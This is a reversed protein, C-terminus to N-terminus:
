SRNRLVDGHVDCRGVKRQRDRLQLAIVQGAGRGRAGDGVRDERANVRGVPGLHPDCADFRARQARPRAVEIGHQGGFARGRQRAQRQQADREGHLVVDVHGAHGGRGCARREGVFRRGRRGHDFPQQRGARDQDALGVEVLERSAQYAGARRVTCHAVRDVGLVHRASGTRPRRHRHGEAEDAERQTGVGGTRAAHRCAQVADDPQFGRTAQEAGAAHHRGAAREVAHGHEGGAHRVAPLHRADSGAVVREVGIRAAHRHRTRLAPCQADGHRGVEFEEAVGLRLRRELRGERAKAVFRADRDAADVVRREAIGGRQQVLARPHGLTVGRDAGEDVGM